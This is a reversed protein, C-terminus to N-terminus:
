TMVPHELQLVKAKVASWGEPHKRHDNDIKVLEANWGPSPFLVIEEGQTMDFIRLLWFKGNGFDYRLMSYDEREIRLALEAVQRVTPKM